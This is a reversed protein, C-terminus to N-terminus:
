CLESKWYWDDWQQERRQYGQAELLTQIGQRQETFNHEVTICRFQYRNWDIGELIALESGETDISLYDIVVPAEQQDLLDMLSTTTVEILDGVAAYANRKDVHQDDQGLHELGGYADALVFQMREGSTRYVCAPSLRCSRNQQLREFLKPNPEACIGRWSFHKELLWSNSLLVGDTAGFEVFYGGQKWGLQELVWLDQGLQSRSLSQWRQPGEDQAPAQPMSGSAALAGHSLALSLEHSLLESETRLIQLEAALQEPALRAPDIARVAEAHLTEAEKWAGAQVLLQGALLRGRAARDREALWDPLQREVVELGEKRLGALLLSQGLSLMVAQQQAAAVAEESAGERQAQVFALAAQQQQKGAEAGPTLTQLLAVGYRLWEAPDHSELPHADIVTQWDGREFAQQTM